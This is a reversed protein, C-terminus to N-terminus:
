LRAAHRHHEHTEKVNVVHLVRYGLSTEQRLRHALARADAAEGIIVVNHRHKGNARLARLLQHTIEHVVLLTTFLLLWFMLLFFPTVFDLEFPWSAGLLVATAINVVVFVARVNSHHQLRHHARYLGYSSFVLSCFALYAGLLLLNIVRVRVFLVDTFSPWTFTGYSITLAAVLVVCVIIVDCTTLVRTLLQRRFSPSM